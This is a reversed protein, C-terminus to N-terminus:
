PRVINDGKAKSLDMFREALEGGSIGEVKNTGNASPIDTGIDSSCIMQMNEDILAGHGAFYIIIAAENKKIEPHCVLRSISKIIADRSANNDRLNCINDCPVGLNHTLYYNFRDADEAAGCLHPYSSPLRYRSIGIVVAFIPTKTIKDSSIRNHSLSMTFSFFKLHHFSTLLDKNTSVINYVESFHRAARASLTDIISHNSQNHLLNEM